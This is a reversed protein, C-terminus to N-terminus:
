RYVGADHSRGEHRSYRVLVLELAESTPDIGLHVAKRKLKRPVTGIGLVESLLGKKSGALSIRGILPVLGELVPGHPDESTDEQIM